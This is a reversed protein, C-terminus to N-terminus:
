GQSEQQQYLCYYRGKLAMLEQHTGREVISGKDMMLITAANKISNLRHTVFFVTQHRFTQALNLCVQRESDYDLASTAEDLILMRPKQLVARAIAIRQRQGGSLAAGREGVKTNYGSPLEMIFDHAAAVQAAAIVDESTADPDAIAINEQVTGSFLLTDQLVMGIQQRYSYLETKSIDYKDIIIRGSNLEYLRPILKMLTSKGSGSLGVIGVFQGAAFEANLNILQNVNSGPFSFTLNEIKVHGQILPMTINNINDADVEPQADLIDSLREISLATEQFNQWLQVLRLLPQTTYGAIIRFAILEGLTLHKDLVLYTGVWLLLLGSLKNLFGSISSATNSTLATKFGASVYRAYKTQWQWRSRLEINQAKITQIGGIVEVLYSQSEANREAKTRLQGRVIPSVIWTLLIFAPLTALAIITLLWSYALMVGIYIVSFIADLVVTLATGTLFQRINELENIRTALEGVPRKEFYKLPLRFLRDIIQSGLTLDIRNTTDVFLNTRLTSLIAEVIALVILLTGFTNLTSVSNGGIVKDIILQTLLPNALGFLQVFLSAILVEVLVQKHKQIAPIFWRMGFKTQPSNNSRHLLLVEGDNGWLESFTALKLRRIGTAPIALTLEQPKIQYVIAFSDDWPILLPVQLKHIATAPIKVMQANIGILEAIAGALQLPVSSNNTLQNKLLRDVVDPRFPVQLYKCLMKLCAITGGLPGRGKFIPYNNRRGHPPNDEVRDAAVPRDPAYPIGLATPSFESPEDTIELDLDDATVVVELRPVGVLRALNPKRIELVSNPATQLDLCSGVPYDSIEGSSVFWSRELDLDAIRLKGPSLNRITARTALKLAFERLDKAGFSRMLLDPDPCTQLYRAVLDYVEIAPTGYYFLAELQPTRDILQRFDAVPVRVCVAETSAIATECACQRLVGTWGLIEGKELLQLTTPLRDLPNYAILRIQGSYVIIIRDPMQEPMLVTQGMRYRIFESRDTLTALEAISLQAFPLLNAYFDRIKTQSSNM